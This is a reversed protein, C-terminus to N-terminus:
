RSKIEALTLSTTATRDATTITDLPIRYIKAEHIVTAVDSRVSDIRGIRRGEADRLMQGRKAATAETAAAPAAVEAHAVAPVALALAIVSRLVFQNM